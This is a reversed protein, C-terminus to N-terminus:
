KKYEWYFNYASKRKGACVARIHSAGASSIRTEKSSSYGNDICWQMAKHSNEFTQIYEHTDKTYQNIMQNNKITKGMLNIDNKHATTYITDKGCHVINIIESYTKGQELLDIIINQDYLRSGKGGLAANYGTYYSNYYSIWYIERENLKESDCEEILEIFFHEKGYKKIASLLPRTKTTDKNADSFHGKLRQDLTKTTQGIYIKDNIDNYIKYIYGTM